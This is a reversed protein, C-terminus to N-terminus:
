REGWFAASSSEEVRRRARCGEDERGTTPNVYMDRDSDYVAAASGPEGSSCPTGAAIFVRNDQWIRASYACRICWAETDTDDAVFVHGAASAMAAQLPANGTITAGFVDHMDWPERNVPAPCYGHRSATMQDHWRRAQERTSDQTAAIQPDTAAANSTM